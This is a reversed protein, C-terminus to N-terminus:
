RVEAARLKRIIPQGRLRPGEKSVYVFTALQNTSNLM